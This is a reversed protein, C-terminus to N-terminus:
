DMLFPSARLGISKEKSCFCFTLRSSSCSEKMETNTEHADLVCTGVFTIAPLLIPFKREIEHFLRSM